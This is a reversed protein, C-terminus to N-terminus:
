RLASFRRTLASDGPALAVGRQYDARAGATDGLVLKADGAFCAATATPTTALLREGAARVSDAGFGRGLEDLYLTLADPDRRLEPWHMLRSAVTAAERHMGRSRLTEALDVVLQRDNASARYAIRLNAIASDTQNRSRQDMGLLWHGRYSDPDAVLMQTFLAAHSRWPLLGSWTQRLAVVLAVAAVVAGFLQVARPSSAHMARVRLVDAIWAVILASGITSVYLTREAFIQGTATFINSAPVFALVLWGIGAAFRADQKRALLIAFALVVGLVAVTMLADLTPTSAGAIYSPGYHPNLAHPFLLVRLAVPGMALMSWVRQGSSLGVLGPAAITAPVVAGLVAIRAVVVLALMVLFAVLARWWRTPSLSSRLSSWDTPPRRWCIAFLLALAPLM